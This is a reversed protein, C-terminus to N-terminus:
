RARRGVAHDAVSRDLKALEVACRVEIQQLLASLDPEGPDIDGHRLQKALDDARQPAVDGNLLDRHLQDLCHLLSYGRHLMKRWRAAQDGMEQLALLSQASTIAAPAIAAWAGDGRGVQGSPLRFTGDALAPESGSRQHPANTSGNRLVRM